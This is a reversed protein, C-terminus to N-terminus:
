EGRRRDVEEGEGTWSELELRWSAPSGGQRGQRVASLAPPGASLMISIDAGSFSVVLSVDLEWLAVLTEAGLLLHALGLALVTRDGLPNTEPGAVGDLIRKGLDATV